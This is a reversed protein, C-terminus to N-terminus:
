SVAPLSSQEELPEEVPAKGKLARRISELTQGALATGGMGLSSYLITQLAVERENKMQLDEYRNYADTIDAPGIDSDPNGAERKMEVWAERLGAAEQLDGKGALRAGAKRAGVRGGIVAAVAPLIGTALPISKGLFTVEPGHIGEATAKLPLANGFLYSKYAEYEGKSVDPREKVFEEYPLLAGSRGLFYRSGMEALPDATQTPDMESPVVAKFGPQRYANGVAMSVGILAPLTTAMRVTRNKILPAQRGLAQYEQAANQTGQLMALQTLAQPANLFWWINRLGDSALDALGVGAAQTAAARFSDGTPVEGGPVPFKGVRVTNRQVEPDGEMGLSPDGDRYADLRQVEKENFGGLPVSGISARAKKADEPLMGVLKQGVQTAALNEPLRQRAYNLLQSGQLMQEVPTGEYEDGLRRRIQAQATGPLAVASRELGYLLADRSFEAM